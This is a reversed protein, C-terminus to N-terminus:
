LFVYFKPKPRRIKRIHRILWFCRKRMNFQHQGRLVHLNVIFSYAYLIKIITLGYQLSQKVLHSRLLINQRGGKEFSTCLQQKHNDDDTSVYVNFHNM